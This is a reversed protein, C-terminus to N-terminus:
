RILHLLILIATEKKSSGLKMPTLLFPERTKGEGIALEKNLALRIPNFMGNDKTDTGKVSPIM